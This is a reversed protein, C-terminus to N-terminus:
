TGQLSSKGSISTPHTTSNDNIVVMGVILVLGPILTKKRERILCNATKREDTINGQLRGWRRKYQLLLLTKVKIMKGNMM